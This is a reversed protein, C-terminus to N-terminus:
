GFTPTPTWTEGPDDRPILRDFGFSEQIHRGRRSGLWPPGTKPAGPLTWSPGRTRPFSRVPRCGSDNVVVEVTCLSRVRPVLAGEEEGDRCPWEEEDREM